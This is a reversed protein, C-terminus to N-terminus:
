TASPAIVATRSASAPKPPRAVVMKVHYGEYNSPLDVWVKANSTYVLLTNTKDDVGITWIDKFPYKKSFNEVTQAVSNATTMNENQGQIM